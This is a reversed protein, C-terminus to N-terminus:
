GRENEEGGEEQRGERIGRRGDGEEVGKGGCMGCRRGGEKGREKGGGM